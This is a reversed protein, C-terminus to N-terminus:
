PYDDFVEILARELVPSFQENDLGDFAGLLISHTDFEAERPWRACRCGLFLGDM